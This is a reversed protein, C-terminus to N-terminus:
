LLGQGLLAVQISLTSLKLQRHEDPNSYLLMVLTHSPSFQKQVTERIGECPHAHVPVVYKSYVIYCDRVTEVMYIDCKAMLCM